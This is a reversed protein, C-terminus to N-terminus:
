ICNWGWVTEMERRAPWHGWLGCRQFGPHCPDACREPHSLPPNQCLHRLRNKRNRRIECSKSACPWRIMNVSIRLIRVCFCLITLRHFGDPCNMKDHQESRQFSDASIIFWCRPCNKCILPTWFWLRSFIFSYSKWVHFIWIRYFCYTTFVTRAM